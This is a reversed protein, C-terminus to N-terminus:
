GTIQLHSQFLSDVKFDESCLKYMWMHATGLLGPAGVDIGVIYGNM